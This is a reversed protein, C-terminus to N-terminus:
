QAADRAPVAKAALRLAGALADGEPAVLRRRTERPLYPELVAALGGVLAIRPAGTRDLREVLSAIHQAALRALEIAAPDGRGSEEIVLPAIDGYDRPLASTTWRVVAHADREFRAFVRDLLPTWKVRGDHAWLVRRVAERGLWAGSGEDSVALGWGGVRHRQGGVIGWGISGTGIIVVAGDRGGHAGVCAAEADTAIVAHAFPLPHRRAAALQDPESAGALALCATTKGLVTHPLRAAALCQGAADLAAAFAEVFGYRLNAPGATGEGLVQGSCRALRARCCTGGGDVGLFFEDGTAMTEEVSDSGFFRRGRKSRTFVSYALGRYTPMSSHLM